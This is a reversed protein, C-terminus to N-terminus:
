GHYNEFPATKRMHLHDISSVKTLEQAIKGTTKPKKNMM